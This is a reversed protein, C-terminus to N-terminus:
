ALIDHPPQPQPAPDTTQQVAVPQPAPDAASAETDCPPEVLAKVGDTFHGEIRTLMSWVDNLAGELYDSARISRLKAIEDEISVALGHIAAVTEKELDAAENEIGSFARALLHEVKGFISM